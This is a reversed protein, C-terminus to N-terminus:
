PKAKLLGALTDGSAYRIDSIRWGDATKVTEYKLTVREDSNADTFSVEVSGPTAGGVVTLMSASAVQSYWLPPFDLNCIQQTRESCERDAVLLAALEPTLYRELVQKPAQVFVPATHPLDFVVEWAYDRYLSEVVSRSDPTEAHASGAALALAALFPGFRHM